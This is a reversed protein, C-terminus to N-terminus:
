DDHRDDKKKEKHAKRNEKGMVMTEKIGEMVSKIIVNLFAKNMDREIQFDVVRSPENESTPNSSRVVNNGAFSLLTSKWAAKDEINVTFKLDHYLFEMTGMAYTDYAIGNFKVQDCLGSELQVPTYAGLLKNLGTLDFPAVFGAFDFKSGAYDFLLTADFRAVGELDGVGHLRMQGVPSINSFNKLSFTANYVHVQATTGDELIETNDIISNTATVKGISIPLDLGTLSQPPYAPLRQKDVPKTKDKYIKAKVSDIQISEVMLRSHYILADFNVQKLALTKFSGSVEATQYKHRSQLAAQSVNPKFRVEDIKISEDRYWLDFQEMTIEQLSDKTLLDLNQISSRFDLFKYLLTDTSAASTASDIRISFEEFSVHKAFGTSLDGEFRGILLEALEVRSVYTGRDMGIDLNNLALSVREVRYESKSFSNTMEVSADKLRFASLHFADLFADYGKEQLPDKQVKIMEPFPLFINRSGNLAFAVDPRIIIIKEVRLEKNFLLQMIEVNELFLLSTTLEVSSNIYPYKKKPERLPKLVVDHVKISGSLLGVSLKDFQLQYVDAALSSDFIQKLTSSVLKDLSLSLVFFAALSFAILVAAIKFPRRKKQNNKAM